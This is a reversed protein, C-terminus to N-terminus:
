FLTLVLLYFISQYKKFLYRVFDPLQEINKPPNTYLSPNNITKLKSLTTLCNNEYNYSTDFFTLKGINQNNIIANTIELLGQGNQSAPSFEITNTLSKREAIARRPLGRGLRIASSLRAEGEM